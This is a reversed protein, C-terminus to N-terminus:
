KDEMGRSSGERAESWEEIVCAHAWGGVTVEV